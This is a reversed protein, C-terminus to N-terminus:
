APTEEAPAAIQIEVQYRGDGYDLLRVAAVQEGTTETFHRLADAVRQEAIIHAATTPTHELPFASTDAM